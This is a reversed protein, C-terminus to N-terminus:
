FTQFLFHFTHQDGDIVYIGADDRCEGGYVDHPVDICRNITAQQAVSYNLLDVYRNGSTNRRGEFMYLMMPALILEDKVDECVKPQYHYVTGALMATFTQIDVDDSCPFIENVFM